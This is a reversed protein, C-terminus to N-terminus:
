LGRILKKMELMNPSSPIVCVLVNVPQNKNTIISVTIPGPSSLSDHWIFKRLAGYILVRFLLAKLKYKVSPMTQFSSLFGKELPYTFIIWGYWYSDSCPSSFYNCSHFVSVSFDPATSPNLVPTWWSIPYNWSETSLFRTGSYNLCYRM